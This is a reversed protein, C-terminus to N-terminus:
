YEGSCFYHEQEDHMARVDPIKFSYARKKHLSAGLNSICFCIQLFYYDLDGAERNNEDKQTNTHIHTHM